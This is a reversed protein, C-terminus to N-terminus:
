GRAITQLLDCRDVQLTRELIGKVTTRLVTSDSDAYYARLCWWALSIQGVPASSGRWHGQYFYCDRASLLGAIVDDNHVTSDYRDPHVLDQLLVAARAVYDASFLLKSSAGPQKAALATAVASVDLPPLEEAETVPYIARAVDQVLRAMPAVSDPPLSRTQLVGVVICLLMGCLGRQAFMPDSGTSDTIRIHRLVQVRRLCCLCRLRCLHCLCVPTRRRGHNFMAVAHCLSGCM